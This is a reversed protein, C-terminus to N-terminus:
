GVDSETKAKRRGLERAKEIRALQERTVKGLIRVDEDPYYRAMRCLQTLSKPDLWGKVEHWVVQGGPYTIRFDPRYSNTGSCPFHFRM